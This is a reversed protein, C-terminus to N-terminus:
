IGVYVKDSQLSGFQIPLSMTEPFAAIVRFKQFLFGDAYSM